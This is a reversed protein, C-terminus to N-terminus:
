RVEKATTCSGDARTDRRLYLGQSPQQRLQRGQLDYYATAVVPSDSSADTIGSGTGKQSIPISLEAGMIEITLVTSRDPGNNPDLTVDISQFNTDGNAYDNAQVHMWEDLGDGHFRVFANAGAITNSPFVEFNKTAGAKPADKWQFYDDSQRYEKLFGYVGNVGFLPGLAYYVKDNQKNFYDSAMPYLNMSGDKFQTYVWGVANQRLKSSEIAMVQKWRIDDRNNTLNFGSVMVLVADKVNLWTTEGKEDRLPIQMSVEEYDTIGKPIESKLLYGGGLRKGMMVTDATAIKEYIDFKLSDSRYNKVSAQFCLSTLGYPAGTAPIEFGIAKLKEGDYFYGQNLQLMGATYHTADAKEMAVLHGNSLDFKMSQFFVRKSAGSINVDYFTRGTIQLKLQENASADTPSFPYSNAGCTLTPVPLDTSTPILPAIQLTQTTATKPKLTIFQSVVGDPDKESEVAMENYDWQCSANPLNPSQFTNAATVTGLWTTPAYGPLVMRCNVMIKNFYEGVGYTTYWGAAPTQWFPYNNTLATPKVNQGQRGPTATRRQAPSAPMLSSQWVAADATTVAVPASPQAKAAEQAPEIASAGLAAALAVLTLVQKTM